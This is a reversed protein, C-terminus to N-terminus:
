CGKKRCRIGMLCLKKEVDWGMASFSNPWVTIPINIETPHRSAPGREGTEPSQQSKTVKVNEDPFRKPHYSFIVKTFIVKFTIKWVSQEISHKNM